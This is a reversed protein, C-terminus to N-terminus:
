AAVLRAAASDPGGVVIRVLREEGLAMGVDIATGLDVFFLETAREPSSLKWGHGAPVISVTLVPRM